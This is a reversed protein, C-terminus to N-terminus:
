ESDKQQNWAVWADKADDALVFPEPEGLDGNSAVKVQMMAALLKEYQHKSVQAPGPVEHRGGAAKGHARGLLPNASAVAVAGAYVRVLVSRDRHADVRFTTGRVGAVANDTTVEFRSQGGLVSTVKSWLKGFALKAGFQKHGEAGAFDAQQIVLKSSEDLRLASHDALTIEIRSGPGTSVEDGLAVASGTALPESRGAHQREATGSLFSVKGAPEAPAAFSAASLFLGVAVATASAAHVLGRAIEHM